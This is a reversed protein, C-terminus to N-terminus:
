GFGHSLGEYVHFNAKEAESYLNAVADHLYNVIAVTEDPDINNYYTLRLNELTEGSWYGRQVLFSPFLPMKGFISHFVSNKEVLLLFSLSKQLYKQM